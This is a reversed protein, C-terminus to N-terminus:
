QRVNGDSDADPGRPRGKYGSDGRGEFRPFFSPTTPTKKEKSKKGYYRPVLHTEKSKEKLFESSIIKSAM